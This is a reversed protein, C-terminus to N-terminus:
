STTRFIGNRFRINEFLFSSIKSIRRLKLFLKWLSLFFFLISALIERYSLPFVRFELLFSLRESAIAKAERWIAHNFFAQNLHYFAQHFLYFRHLSFWAVPFVAFHFVTYLFFMFPFGPVSFRAASFGNRGGFVFRKFIFIALLKNYLICANLLKIRQSSVKGAVQLWSRCFRRSFIGLCVYLHTIQRRVSYSGTFDIWFLLWWNRFNSKTNLEKKRYIKSFFTFCTSFHRFIHFFNSYPFGSGPAGSDKSRFSKRPRFSSKKM